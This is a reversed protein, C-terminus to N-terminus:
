YFLSNIIKEYLEEIMYFKPNLKNTNNKLECILNYAENKKNQNFFLNGIKNLIAHINEQPNINYAMDFCYYGEDYKNLSCLANGKNIWAMDLLGDSLKIAKDLYHIAKLYDKKYDVLIWGIGNYANALYPNIKIAEKYSDIAQDYEQINALALAKNIYADTNESYLSISENCIEIAKNYDKKLFFAYGKASLIASKIEPRINHPIEIIYDVIVTACDYCWIADEYMGYIRCTRGLKMFDDLNFEEALPLFSIDTLSNLKNVIVDLREYDVIFFNNM